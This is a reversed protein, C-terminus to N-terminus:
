QKQPRLGPVQRCKPFRQPARCRRDHAGRVRLHTRHPSLAAQHPAPRAYVQGSMRPADGPLSNGRHRRAIDWASTDEDGYRLHSDPDGTPTRWLTWVWGRQGSAGYSHAAAPAMSPFAQRRLLALSRSPSTWQFAGGKRHGM